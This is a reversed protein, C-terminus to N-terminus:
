KKDFSVLLRKLMNTPPGQVVFAHIVLANYINCFFAIKENRSLHSLDVRKLESTARIYEEFKRSTSIGQYDVGQFSAISRICLLLVMFQRKKTMSFNKDDLFKECRLNKMM